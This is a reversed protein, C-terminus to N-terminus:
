KNPHLRPCGSDKDLKPVRGSVDVPFRPSIRPLLLWRQFFGISSMLISVSAQLLKPQEPYRSELLFYILYALFVPPSEFYYVVYMMAVRVRDDMLCIAVRKGFTKLGLVRPVASLLEDLTYEALEHNSQAPVM